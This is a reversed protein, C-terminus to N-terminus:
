RKAVITLSPQLTLRKKGTAQEKLEKIKEHFIDANLESAKNSFSGMRKDPLFSLLDKLKSKSPPTRTKQDEAEKTL